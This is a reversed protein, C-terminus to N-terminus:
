PIYEVSFVIKEKFLSFDGEEFGPSFKDVKKDIYFSNLGGMEIRANAEEILKVGSFSKNLKYSSYMFSLLALTCVVFVGIALITVPLDGRKNM